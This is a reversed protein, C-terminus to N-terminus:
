QGEGGALARDHLVVSAQHLGDQMVSHLDRLSDTAGDDGQVLRRVAVRLEVATNGFLEDDVRMSFERRLGGPAPLRRRRNRPHTTPGLGLIHIPPSPASALVQRSAITSPPGAAGTIMPSGCRIVPGSRRSARRWSLCLSALAYLDVCQDVARGTRGTQEPALYALTGVIETHHTFEPRIEALSTALAFDVLCPAGDHAVVINAPTIDRHIVGNAPTIDRHIVGRRHVDSVARALQVAPEILADKDRPKACEALNATGADQLLISVPEAPAEGLQAVGNVGRLRQLM